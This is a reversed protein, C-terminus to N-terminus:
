VGPAAIARMLSLMRASAPRFLMAMTSGLIALILMSVLMKAPFALTVLQLNANLKGMLALAIDVLLLLAVLPLALRLGLTLMASSFDIAASALSPTLRFSGPPYAQLSAAFLRVLERDLGFATFLLASMLQALVQLMSSDAQTTPDIMSAYAYGAQLGLFQM